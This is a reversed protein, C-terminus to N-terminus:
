DHLIQINGPATRAPGAAGGAARAPGMVAGANIAPGDPLMAAPGAPTPLIRRASPCQYDRARKNSADEVSRRRRRGNRFPGIETM